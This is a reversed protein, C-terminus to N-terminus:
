AGGTAAQDGEGPAQGFLPSFIWPKFAALLGVHTRERPSLTADLEVLERFERALQQLKRELLELAAASLEGSEFHFRAAPDRFGAAMFDERVADAYRQWLPGDQRWAVHPGCRLRVRNGPLLDILGLRDLKALRRIGQPETLGEDENVQAATWGTLLRYFYRLLGPDAALAREQAVTLARVQEGHLQEALRALDSIRMDMMQCVAEMRELTFRGGSFLRKVSAESLDLQRAVDRYTLNASKLCRKLSEVLARSEQM